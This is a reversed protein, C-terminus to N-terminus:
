EKLGIGFYVTMPVGAVREIKKRFELEKLRKGFATSNMPAEGNDDCWHVHADYLNSSPAKARQSVVCCESLFRDFWVEELRYEETASTVSQPEQLGRQQWDLCGELAWALIGPLESKLIEPLEPEQKPDFRQTFPILRLRRWFGHSDDNVSPKHNVALWLKFHPHFTFFEHNLFRATIPDGGTISKIRAENLKAGDRTESSTVLRLGALAAIDNTQANRDIFEFTSFPTNGAYTGLLDRLVNLFTSKGNAGSGYLLFLVQASIDGTLSYGVARKVFAILDDDGAFVEGLFQLWRPCEALPGYELNTSRTIRQDPRAEIMKGARLDLVGNKCGLLWSDIDWAAADAVPKMISAAQLMAARRSASESHLAWKATHERAAKEDVRAASALRERACQIALRQVEGDDDLRWGQENWILWKSRAHDFRVRNEFLSVFAEGNGADTLPFDNLARGRAIAQLAVAARAAAKGIDAEPDALKTGINAAERYKWKEVVTKWNARLLRDSVSVNSRLLPILYNIAERQPWTEPPIARLVPEYGAAGEKHMADRIANAIIKHQELWFVDPSFDPIYDLGVGDSFLLSSLVAQEAVEDFILEAPTFPKKRKPLEKM